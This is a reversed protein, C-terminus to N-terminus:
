YYVVQNKEDHATIIYIEDHLPKFDKLDLPIMITNYRKGTLDQPRKIITMYDLIDISEAISHVRVGITEVPVSSYHVNSLTVMLIKNKTRSKYKTADTM